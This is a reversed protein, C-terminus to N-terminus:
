KDFSNYKLLNKYDQESMFMKQPQLKWSDIIKKVRGWLCQSRVEIRGSSNIIVPRIM